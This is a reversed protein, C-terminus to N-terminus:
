LMLGATRGTGKKTDAAATASSNPNQLLHRGLLLLRDVALNDFLVEEQSLTSRRLLSLRIAKLAALALLTPRHPHERQISKPRASVTRERCTSGPESEQQGSRKTSQGREDDCICVREASSGIVTLQITASATTCRQGGTKQLGKDSAYANESKRGRWAESVNECGGCSLQLLLHFNEYPDRQPPLPTPKFHTTPTPRDPNTLRRKRQSESCSKPTQRKRESRAYRRHSPRNVSIMAQM